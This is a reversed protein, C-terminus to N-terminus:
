NWSEIKMYSVLVLVIIFGFFLSLLLSSPVVLSCCLADGIELGCRRSQALRSEVCGSGHIADAQRGALRHGDDLDKGVQELLHNVFHALLHHYKLRSWM